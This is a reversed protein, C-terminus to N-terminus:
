SAQFFDMCGMYGELSSSMISTSAHFSPRGHCNPTRPVAPGIKNRRPFSGFLRAAATNEPEPAVDRAFHLEFRFHRLGGLSFGDVALRICGLHRSGHSLLIGAGTMLLGVSPGFQFM